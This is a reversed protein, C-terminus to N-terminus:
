SLGTKPKQLNAGFNYNLRTQIIYTKTNSISLLLSFAKNNIFCIVSAMLFVSVVTALSFTCRKTLKEKENKNKRISNEEGDYLECQMNISQM